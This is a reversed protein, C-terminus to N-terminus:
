NKMLVALASKIITEVDAEPDAKKMAAAIESRSYGLAALAERADAMSNSKPAAARGEDGADAPLVPYLKALKDKLEMVVRAATKPGVGPARSITKADGLAVASALKAPTLLSLISMGAKPGIGSVGILLRFVDLEERTFFGFLEVGDERVAMHTYLRVPDSPKPEGDPGYKPAPLRSLTNASVAVRYGVGMCELIVSCTAANTEFITGYLTEIM